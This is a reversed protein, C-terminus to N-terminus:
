ENVQIEHTSCLKEATTFVSHPDPCQENGAAAMELSYAARALTSFQYPFLVEVVGM